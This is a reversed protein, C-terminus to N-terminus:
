RSQLIARGSCNIDFERSLQSSSENYEDGKRKRDKPKCGEGSAQSAAGHRQWTCSLDMLRALRISFPFCCTACPWARISLVSPTCSASVRMADRRAEDGSMRGKNRQEGQGQQIKM